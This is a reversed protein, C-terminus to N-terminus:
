LDEKEILCNNFEWVTNLFDQAAEESPFTIYALSPDRMSAIMGQWLCVFAQSRMAKAAIIKLEERIKVKEEDTKAHQLQYFADKVPQKIESKFLITQPQIEINTFPNIVVM